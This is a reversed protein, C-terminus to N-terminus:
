EQPIPLPTKPHKQPQSLAKLKDRTALLEERTFTDWRDRLGRFEQQAIPTRELIEEMQSPTVELTIDSMGAKEKM